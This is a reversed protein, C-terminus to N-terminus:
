LKKVQSEGSSVPITLRIGVEESTTQARSHIGVLRLNKKFMDMHQLLNHDLGVNSAWLAFFISWRKDAFM